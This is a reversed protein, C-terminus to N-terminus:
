AAPLAGAAGDAPRVGGELDFALAATVGSSGKSGPALRYDGGGAGDAYTSGGAWTKAQYDVYVIEDRADDGAPILSELGPFDHNFTLTSGTANGSCGCGHVLAWNATNAGDNVFVDTKINLQGMVNARLFLNTFSGPSGATDDYGINVRGKAGQAAITNHVFILNNAPAAESWSEAFLQVLRDDGSTMEILNQVFALGHLVSVASGTSTAYAVPNQARLFRNFAVIMGDYGPIALTQGLATQTEELTNGIFTKMRIQTPTDAFTCGRWMQHSPLSSGGIIGCNEVACRTWWAYFNFWIVEAGATGTNGGNDVLCDHVWVMSHAAHTRSVNGVPVNLRGTGIRRYTLGRLALYDVDLTHSATLGQLIVEARTALPDREITLYAEDTNSQAGATSAGWDAHTGAMLRVVHGDLRAGDGTRLAIVAAAITLFPAARATAPDADVAGAGDDGAVPDVYAHLPVHTSDRWFYQPEWQTNLGDSSASAAVAAADGVHPYVTANLTLRAGDALGSVDIDAAYVPVPNADGGGDWGSLTFASVTESVTTTGDSVEFVVAAAPTGDRPMGHHVTVETSLTDGVLRRDPLAFACVPKPAALTSGNGIGAVSDSAYVHEALAVTDASLSTADPYPERVRTTLPIAEPVSVPAGTADFGARDVILHRPDGVPDFAAPPSAYTVSWGEPDVATIAPDMVPGEAVDDVTITLAATADPSVGNAARVTIGHGPATEYDLPAALRLENGVIEFKGDPDADLTFTVPADGTASLVGVVSGPAADEAVSSASLEPVGPAMPAAAVAITLTLTVSGGSNSVTVEHPAAATAATPTGSLVGAGGLVLGAPLGSAAFGLGSGTVHVSLDLATMAVGVTLDVAAPTGTVVPAAANVSVSFGASASLGGGDTATVTVTSTGPATPTGSLLGATSLALGAPLGSAAFGLSDGPDSFVGSVDVATMAADLTLTLDSLSGTVAPATNAAPDTVTVPGAEASVSGGANAAVERYSYAGALATTLTLGAAGPVTLGDRLWSETVSDAGTYSGPTATLVAGVTGGGALTPASVAVPAPLSSFVTNRLRLPETLQHVDGQAPSELMLTAYYSGPPLDSLEAAPVRLVGMRGRRSFYAAGRFTHSPASDLGYAVRLVLDGPDVDTVDFRPAVILPWAHHLDAGEFLEM